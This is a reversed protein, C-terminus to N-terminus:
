AGRHVQASEIAFEAIDKAAAHGARSQLRADVVEDSGLSCALQEDDVSHPCRCGAVASASGM